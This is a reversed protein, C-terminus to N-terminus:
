HITLRTGDFVMSCWQSGYCPVPVDCLGHRRTAMGGHRRPAESRGSVDSLGRLRFATLALEGLGPCEGDLGLHVSGDTDLLVHLLLGLGRSHLLTLLTKIM